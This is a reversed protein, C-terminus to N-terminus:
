VCTCSSGGETVPFQKDEALEPLGEQVLLEVARSTWSKGCGIRHSLEALTVEGSRGLETQVTCRTVTMGGCFAVCHHQLLILLRAVERPLAGTLLLQEM